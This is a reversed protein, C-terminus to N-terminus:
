YSTELFAWVCYYVVISAIGLRDDGSEINYRKVGYYITFQAVFTMIYGLFGHQKLVRMSKLLSKFQNEPLYKEMLSFAGLVGVLVTTFLILLGLAAHTSENWM